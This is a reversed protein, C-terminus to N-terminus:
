SGPAPYLVEDTVPILGKLVADGTPPMFGWLGGSSGGDAAFIAEEGDPQGNEAVWAAISTALGADAEVSTLSWVIIVYNDRQVTVYELWAEFEDSTATHLSAYSARTGIDAIEGTSVEPTSDQALAPLDAAVGQSTVDYATAANDANDFELVTVTASLLGRFVDELDLDPTAALLSEVDQVFTRSVGAQIGELEDIPPVASASPTQAAGVLSTSALALCAFLVALFRPRLM